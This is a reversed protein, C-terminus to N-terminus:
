CLACLSWCLSLDISRHYFVVWLFPKNSRNRRTLALIARLDNLVSPFKSGNHFSRENHIIMCFCKRNNLQVLKRWAYAEPKYYLLHIIHLVQQYTRVHANCNPKKHRLRFIFSLQINLQYCHLIDLEVPNWLSCLLLLLYLRILHVMIM